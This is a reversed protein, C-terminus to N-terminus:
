DRGISSIWLYMGGNDGHELLITETEQQVKATSTPYGDIPARKKNRSPHETSMITPFVM